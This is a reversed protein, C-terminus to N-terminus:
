PQEIFGTVPEDFLSISILSLVNREMATALGDKKSGDFQCGYFVIKM